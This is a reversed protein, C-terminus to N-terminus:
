SNEYPHLLMEMHNSNCNQSTEHFKARKINEDAVQKAQKIFHDNM